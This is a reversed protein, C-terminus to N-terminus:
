ARVVVLRGGPKSSIADLLEAGRSVARLAGNLAQEARAARAIGLVAEVTGPRVGIAIPSAAALPLGPRMRTEGRMVPAATAPAVLGLAPIPIVGDAAEYCAVAALGRKDIAAVVQTNSGRLAPADRWPVTLVGPPDLDGERIRVLAPRTSELDDRTLAGRASRGAVALLEAAAVGRALVSPGHRALDELLRAREASRAKALVLAPAAAQLFSVNGLAALVSGLAAPLSPAGVRAADPVPEDALFGRPRAAGLGPQRTRGDVALLGAGSGAVLVQVPGLLVSPCTAAATLVGAVVAAVANGRRLAASAAAAVHAESAAAGRHTMKTM